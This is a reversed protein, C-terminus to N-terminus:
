NLWNSIGLLLYPHSLRVLDRAVELSALPIPRLSQAEIRSGIMEKWEYILSM